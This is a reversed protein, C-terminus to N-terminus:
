FISTRKADYTYIDHNARMLCSYEYCFFYILVCLIFLHKPNYANFFFRKKEQRKGPFEKANPDGM